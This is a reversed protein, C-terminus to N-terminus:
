VGIAYLKGHLSINMNAVRTWTNTDPDYCDVSPVPKRVNSDWGGTVYVKNNLATVGSASRWTPMSSDSVINWQDTFILYILLYIM